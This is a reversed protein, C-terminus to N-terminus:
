TSPIYVHVVNLDVYVCTGEFHLQVHVHDQYRRYIILHLINYLMYSLQLNYLHFIFTNKKKYM